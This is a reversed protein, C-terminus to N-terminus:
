TEHKPAPFSFSPGARMKVAQIESISSFCLKDSSKCHHEAHDLSKWLCILQLAYIWIQIKQFGSTIQALLRCLCTVIKQESFSATHCQPSSYATIGIQFVKQYANIRYSLGKFLKLRRVATTSNMLSRWFRVVFSCRNKKLKISGAKRREYILYTQHYVM